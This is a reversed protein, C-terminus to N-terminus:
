DTIYALRSLLQMSASIYSHIFAGGNAGGNAGGVDVTSPMSEITEGLDLCCIDGGGEGEGGGGGGWSFTLESM